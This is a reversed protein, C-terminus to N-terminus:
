GHQTEKNKMNKATRTGTAGPNGLRLGNGFRLFLRVCRNDPCYAWRLTKM